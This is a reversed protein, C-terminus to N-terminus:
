HAPSGKSSRQSIKALTAALIVLVLGTIALQTNSLPFQGGGPIALAFGGLGLLIRAMLGLPGTRMTGVRVLYGELASAILAIGVIATMVVMVIDSAEGRLILAPNLVFFFPVFYMSSGLKM